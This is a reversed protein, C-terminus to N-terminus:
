SAELADVKAARMLDDLGFLRWLDIDIVKVRICYPPFSM